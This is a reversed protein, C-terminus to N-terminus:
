NGWADGGEFELELGAAELRDKWIPWKKRTINITGDWPLAVKAAYPFGGEWKYTQDPQLIYHYPNSLDCLIQVTWGSVKIKVTSSNSLDMCVKKDAIAGLRILDDVVDKIETPSGVLMATSDTKDKEKVKTCIVARGVALKAFHPLPLPFLCVAKDNIMEFSFNVGVLPLYIGDAERNSLVPWAPHRKRAKDMLGRADAEDAFTWIRAAANWTGGVRKVMAYLGQDSGYGWRLGVLKGDPSWKIFLHNPEHRDVLERRDLKIVSEIKM